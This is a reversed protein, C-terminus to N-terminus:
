SIFNASDWDPKEGLLINVAEMTMMVLPPPKAFSKIETIDKKELNELAEAAAALAPLAEALAEDAGAKERTIVVNDEEIQKAM